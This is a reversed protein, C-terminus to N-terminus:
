CNDIVIISKQIDKNKLADISGICNLTDDINQYHLIVFAVKTM